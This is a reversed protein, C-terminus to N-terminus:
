VAAKNQESDTKGYYTFNCEFDSLVKKIEEVLKMSRRKCQPCIEPPDEKDIIVPVRNGCFTCEYTGIRVRPSIDSRKVILSDLMILKGIFASGVDQVMPMNVNQNFFRVH